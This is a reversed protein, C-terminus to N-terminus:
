HIFLRIKNSGSNKVISDGIKIEDFLIQETSSLFIWKGDILIDPFGRHSQIYRIEQIVGNYEKGLFDDYMRDSAGNLFNTLWVLSGVLVLFFGIKWKTLVM